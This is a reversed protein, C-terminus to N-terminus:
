STYDPPSHVPRARSTETSAPSWRSSLNGYVTKPAFSHASLSRVALGESGPALLLIHCSEAGKIGKTTDVHADLNSVKDLIFM